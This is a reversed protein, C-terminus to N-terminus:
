HVQCLHEGGTAPSGCAPCSRAMMGLVEDAQQALGLMQEPTGWVEAVFADGNTRGRARMGLLRRTPHVVVELSDAVAELDCPALVRPSDGPCPVTPSLDFLPGGYVAAGQRLQPGLGGCLAPSLRLEVSSAESRARLSVQWEGPRYVASVAVALAPLVRYHHLPM